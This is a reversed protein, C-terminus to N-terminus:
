SKTFFNFTCYIESGDTVYNGFGVIPCVAGLASILVAFTISIVNFCVSSPRGTFNRRTLVICRDVAVMTLSVISNFSTFASVFADFNCAAVFMNYNCLFLRFVSM